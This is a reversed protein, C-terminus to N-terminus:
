QSKDPDKTISTFQDILSNIEEKIEEPIIKKMQSFNQEIENIILSIQEQKTSKNQNTKIEM